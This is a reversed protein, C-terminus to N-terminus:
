LTEDKLIENIKQDDALSTFYKKPVVVILRDGIYIKYCCNQKCCNQEEIADYVVGNKLHYDVYNKNGLDYEESKYLVKIM